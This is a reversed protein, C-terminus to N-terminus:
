AARSQEDRKKWMDRLNQLVTGIEKGSTIGMKRLDHRSAPFRPTSWRSMEALLKDEGTSVDIIYDTYPKMSDSDDQSKHLDRRHKVLFYHAQSFPGERAALGAEDGGCRGRCTFRPIFDYSKCLPSEVEGIYQALGLEYMVELSHAAHTDLVMKKLEIWIREGSIAELGRANERIAELPAPDHEGAKVSVSWLVQPCVPLYQCPCFRWVSVSVSFNFKNIAMALDLMLVDVQMTTVEFNENHLRATITGHKEGKNNIRRIEATQFTIDEPRKGSLLDLVAGGAIRLEFKYKEFLEAIGNLGDSFLSQVETTKLQMTLLSRFSSTLRVRSIVVPNLIRGWM